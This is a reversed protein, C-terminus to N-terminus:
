RTVILWSPKRNLTNRKVEQKEAYRATLDTYWETGRFHGIYRVEAVIYRGSGKPVLLSKLDIADWLKIYPNMLTKVNVLPWSFKPTGVMGTEQSVEFIDSGTIKTIDADAIILNGNTAGEGEEQSQEVYFVLDGLLNMKSIIDNFNGICDFGDIKRDLEHVNNTRIVVRLGAQRAFNEAITRITLIENTNMAVIENRAWGRVICDMDLWNDVPSHPTSMQIDGAFILQEGTNEYGAYVKVSHNLELNHGVDMCTSLTNVMDRSLGLVSIKAIDAVAGNTVKKVNFKFDLGDYVIKQGDIFFEIHGVRKWTVNGASKQIAGSAM